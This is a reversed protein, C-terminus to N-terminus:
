KLIEFVRQVYKISTQSYQSVGLVLKVDKGNSLGKFTCLIRTYWSLTHHSIPCINVSKLIEFVCQAHKISTQSHECWTNAVYREM